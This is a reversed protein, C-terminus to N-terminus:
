LLELQVIGSSESVYWVSLVKALRADTWEAASEEAALVLLHHELLCVVVLPAAAVCGLAVVIRPLCGLLAVQASGRPVGLTSETGQVLCNTLEKTGM